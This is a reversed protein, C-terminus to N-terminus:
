IALNCFVLLESPENLLLIEGLLEAQREFAKLQRCLQVGFELLILNDTTVSLAREVYELAEPLDGREYKMYSLNVLARVNFYDCALAEEYQREAKWASRQQFFVEGLGVHLRSSNSFCRLGENCFIEAMKMDGSKYFAEALSCYNQESAESELALLLFNIAEYYRKLNICTEGAFYHLGKITPDNQIAQEFHTIAAQYNGDSLFKRGSEFFEQAKQSKTLM